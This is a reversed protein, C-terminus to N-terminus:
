MGTTDKACRFGIHYAAGVPFWCTLRHAVRVDQWLSNCAGGRLVKCMGDDPGKPNSPPSVAYYTDGWWDAVWEHVNGAMDLLGYPSAGSPYSGVATTRGVCDNFNSRSCDPAQGGWPYIRTGSGGRAAKEWEAETPLRKGAWECYAQAMYWDVFIAPQNPYGASEHSAARASSSSTKPPACASATVCQEYQANTVETKDIYYADLTVTHLPTEDSQCAENPNGEDCGMQFTGAPIRVMGVPGGRSVILPLYLHGTGSWALTAPPFARLSMAVLLATLVIVLRKM